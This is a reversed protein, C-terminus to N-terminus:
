GSLGWSSTTSMQDVEYPHLVSDVKSGGLPKFQFGEVPFRGLWYTMAEYFYRSLFVANM